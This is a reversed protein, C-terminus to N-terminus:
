FQKRINTVSHPLTLGFCCCWLGESWQGLFTVTEATNMSETSNQHQQKLRSMQIYFPLFPPHVFYKFIGPLNPMKCLKLYYNHADIQTNPRDLGDQLRSCSKDPRVLYTQAM